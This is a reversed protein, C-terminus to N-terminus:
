EVYGLERLHDLQEDGLDFSRAAVAPLSRHRELAALLDARAALVRDDRDDFRDHQESPDTALDYLEYGGDDLRFILKWDDRAVAIKRGSEGGAFCGESFVQTAAADSRAAALLSSGQFRSGEVGAIEALTAPVSAVEVRSRIRRGRLAEPVAGGIVLPVHILEEYVDKGHFYRGREMFAEGHDATVVILTEDALGLRALAGLLRGLAADFFAIEEDYVAVAFDHDDKTLKGHEHLRKLHGMRISPSDLQGSYSGAFGFEPHRVYSFHPDFYHLWLFFPATSGSRSFDELIGSAVDNIASSTVADHGRIQSEDFRDFGQAFGRRSGAFVHSSVAATRYGADRLVEAITVVDDSLGGEKLLAGHQSPYLSTHLSALSPLTWPAQSWAREFVIGDAALRALNPATTREYGYLDLHDARLTDVSILLLNPRGEAPSKPGPEEACGIALAILLSIPISLSRIV